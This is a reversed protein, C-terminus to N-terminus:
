SRWCRFWCPMSRCSYGHQGQPFIAEFFSRPVLAAVAGAVAFGILLEKWVMRWEMLFSGGVREWAERSKLRGGWSEPLGQSPDM